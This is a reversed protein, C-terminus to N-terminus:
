RQQLAEFNEYLKPKRTTEMVNEKNTLKYKRQIDTVLQQVFLFPAIEVRLNLKEVEYRKSFQSIFFM